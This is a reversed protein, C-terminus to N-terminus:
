SYQKQIKMDQNFLRFVIAFANYHHDIGWNMYTSCLCKWGKRKINNQNNWQICTLTCHLTNVKEVPFLIIIIVIIILIILIKNKIKKYYPYQFRTKKYKFHLSDFLGKLKSTQFLWILAPAKWTTKQSTFSSRPFAVSASRCFCNPASLTRKVKHSM